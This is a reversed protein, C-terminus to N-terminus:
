PFIFSQFSFFYSKCQNGLSQLCHGDEPVKHQLLPLDSFSSGSPSKVKFHPLFVFPLIKLDTTFCAFLILMRQEKIHVSMYRSPLCHIFSRWHCKLNWFWFTTRQFFISLSREFAKIHISCVSLLVWAITPILLIPLDPVPIKESFLTNHQLYFFPMSWLCSLSPVDFLTNWSSFRFDVKKSM